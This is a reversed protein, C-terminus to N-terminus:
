ELQLSQLLPDNIRGTVRLDHESQYNAIANRTGPGIDGDIPGHYYGQIALSNQVDSATSYYPTYGGDTILWGGDYWRYNHHNWSHEGERNWDSHTNKAFWLGGYNNGKNYAQQNSRGQSQNQQGRAQRSSPQASQFIMPSVTPQTQNQQSRAHRNSPQVGQPTVPPVNSQQVTAGRFKRTVPVVGQPSAEGGHHKGESKKDKQKEDSNQDQAFTSVPLILALSAILALSLHTHLKM